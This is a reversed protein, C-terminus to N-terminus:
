GDKKKPTGSIQRVAAAAAQSLKKDDKGKAKALEQLLSLASKAESGFQGLAAAAAIKVNASSDALAETLAKVVKEAESGIDGLAAACSKRVDADKDKALANILPDIADAAYSARIAGVKGLDDAAQARVKANASTKLAAILKPVDEKKPTDASASALVMVGAITGFTILTRM